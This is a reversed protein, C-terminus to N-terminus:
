WKVGVKINEACRWMEHDENLPVFENLSHADASVYLHSFADLGVGSLRVQSFLANRYHNRMKCAM